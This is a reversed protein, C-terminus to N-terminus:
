FNKLISAYVDVIDQPQKQVSESIVQSKESEKAKPEEKKSETVVASPKKSVTKSVSEQLVQRKESQFKKWAKHAEEISEEIVKPSSAEKFYAKLFRAEGPTCKQLKSELLLEAEKKNLQAKLEITESILKNETAKAAELKNEYDKFIGDKSEQIIANVKLLDTVKDLTKLASNYKAESILTSKPKYQELAYNLYKEVGEALVDVKRDYEAKLASEKEETILKVKEDLAKKGQEKVANVAEELLKSHETDISEKLDKIENAHKKEIAEKFMNLKKAHDECIAENCEELKGAFEKDQAALAADMDAKPVMNNKMYDVLEQLKATHNEDLLELIQNIKDCAENDMEAIKTELDAKAQDTAVRKGEDYGEKFGTSQNDAAFKELGADFENMMGDYVEETIVEPCQAKVNDLLKKFTNRM